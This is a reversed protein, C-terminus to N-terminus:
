AAKKFGRRPGNGPGKKAGFPKSGDRRAFPKSGGSNRDGGFSPKGGGFSPRGGSSRQPRDESYSPRGGFAPRDSRQPRDGFSPRENRQPRDGGFSPRGGGFAPRDGRQPRDGFSPRGGGFSPRESRQPRDDSYSPRGASAARQPRDEYSPRGAGFSPRNGERRDFPRSNDRQGRNENYGSRQPRGGFSSKGKGGSRQQPGSKSEYEEKMNPDILRQIARWKAKDGPTLLNVAEGTAGARGTRGIRHIYDEPVQPLDYNIVHEIHPIDLGRAAVDTAVLVTFKKDRFSQIVRDRKRQQLDGHIADARFDQNCLKDALRETGHKTKVFIIVSGERNQLQDLLANYKDSENVLISEQKVNLTPATTSGVTIREPNRLYRASLKVINSPMTASFLLTQRAKPLHEAIADIQISFGMDLMRDTEDLVLFGTRNLKLTGRVLHDNIRGPTGVVLRPVNKLQMFQKPMPEGGILLATKIGAVPILEQLMTMVQTALERTPTMVLATMTPNEILKAILPIGFAGTKGTGTQASGLIDKGALALPITQAQIPTPTHFNMRTLSQVLKEPLNFEAFTQDSKQTKITKPTYEVENDVDATELTTDIGMDMEEVMNMVKDLISEKTMNQHTRKYARKGQM